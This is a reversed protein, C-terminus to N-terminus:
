RASRAAAACHPRRATVFPSRPKAIFIDIAASGGVILIM